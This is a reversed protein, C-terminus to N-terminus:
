AVCGEPVVVRLARPVCRIELEDSRARNYEGDTFHECRSPFGGACGGCHPAIGRPECSLLPNVVVREGVGWGRVARGLEAVTGVNEHGPVFPFSSFPSTSPSSTLTVIGLDSGCIGGMRTRIRVWRDGPLAPSPVDGLRTCAHPGVYLRDNVKGAALTALYRPIPAAFTVAKM